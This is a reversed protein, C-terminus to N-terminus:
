SCVEELACAARRADLRWDAQRDLPALLERAQDLLELGRLLREEDTETLDVVRRTPAFDSIVAVPANAERTM